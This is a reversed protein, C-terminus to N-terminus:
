RKSLGWMTIVGMVIIVGVTIIGLTQPAIYLWIVIFVSIVDGVLLFTNKLLPIAGVMVCILLVIIITDLHFSSFIDWISDNGNIKETYLEIEQLGNKQYITLIYSFSNNFLYNEFHNGSSSVVCTDNIIEKTYNYDKELRTCITVDLNNRSHWDYNLYFSFVSDSVDTLSHNNINLELNDSTLEISPFNLTPLIPLTQGHEVESIIMGNGSAPICVEGSDYQACFLYIKSNLVLYIVSKGNTDSETEYAPIFSNTASNWYKSVVTVGTAYTNDTNYTIINIYGTNSSNKNLLYLSKKIISVSDFTFSVSGTLYDDSSVFATYEGPILYSSINFFGTETTTNLSTAGVLELRLIVNDILLLTNQDYITFEIRAPYVNFTDNILSTTNFTVNFNSTQYGYKYFELSHTGLGLDYLPIITYNDVSSYGDFTYNNLYVSNELDYFRYYTFPNILMTNHSINKNGALDAATVTINKYGNTTFNYNTNNCTTSSEGTINIICTDLNTDSVTIYNSFNFNNYYNYESPLNVTLSPNTTDVTFTYTNSTKNTEDNEAYFSINYTNDTLIPKLTSILGTNYYNYIKKTDEGVMYIKNNDPTLFINLPTDETGVYLFNNSYSCTNIDYNTNCSYEYIKNNEEGSIYLKSGDSNFYSGVPSNDVSSLNLFNNSYSCTTIDYDTNCSYEYISKKDYSLYYLKSGNGNFSFSQGSGGQLSIDKYKNSYSCTTIDYNTICQYQYIKNNSSSLVYLKSGDNNFTLDLITTGESSIDKNSTAKGCTTIDYNVNCSYQYIKNNSSSLVYLKSGDNNFTLSYPNISTVFPPTVVIGFGYSSILKKMDLFAGNNLSYSLNIDGNTSTNLVEVYFNLISTNFITNNILTIDNVSINTFNIDRSVNVSYTYNSSTATTGNYSVEFQSYYVGNSLDVLSTISSNTFNVYSDNVQYTVNFTIDNTTNFITNNIFLDGNATINLITVNNTYTPTYPYQLGTGSNYLKTIETSTLNRSWLSIEDTLGNFYYAGTGGRGILVNSPNGTLGYSLATTFEVGDLYTISDSGDNVLTVMHWNTDTVAVSQTRFTGDYYGAIIKNNDFCILHRDIYGKYHSFLYGHTQTLDGSKFWMNVTYASGQTIVAKVDASSITIQDNVGDFEYGGNIKGSATYTAGVVTGSNGNETSDTQTTNNTDLTWYAENDTSLNASVSVVCLLMVLVIGLVKYLKM